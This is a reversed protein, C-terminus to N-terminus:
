FTRKCKACTNVHERCAYFGVIALIPTLFISCYGVFVLMLLASVGLNLIASGYLIWGLTTVRQRGFFQTSGCYPCRVLDTSETGSDRASATSVARAQAPQSVPVLELTEVGGSVAAETEPYYEQIGQHSANQPLTEERVPAPENLLDASQTQDSPELISVLPRWNELGSHWAQDQDSIEGSKLKEKVQDMSFPGIQNQNKLLFLEM